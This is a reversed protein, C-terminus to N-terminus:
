GNGGLIEPGGLNRNQVGVPARRLVLEADLKCSRRRKGGIEGERGLV